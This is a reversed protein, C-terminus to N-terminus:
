SYLRNGILRLSRNKSPKSHPIYFSLRIESQMYSRIPALRLPRLLFTSGFHLKLFPNQVGIHGTILTPGQAQVEMNGGAVLLKYKGTLEGIFRYCGNIRQVIGNPSVILHNFRLNVGAHCTYRRHIETFNYYDYYIARGVIHHVAIGGYFLHNYLLIGASYNFISNNTPVPRYIGNSKYPDLFDKAIYNLQMGPQLVWEDKLKLHPAYSFNISYLRQKSEANELIYSLGIGGRLVHFYNEISIFYTKPATSKSFPTAYANHIIWASDTGTLAPNINTKFEDGQNDDSNFHNIQARILFGHLLIIMLLTNKKM